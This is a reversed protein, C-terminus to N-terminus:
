EELNISKVTSFDITQFITKYGIFSCKFLYYKGIVIDNIKFVGEANTIGGTRLSTDMIDHLSVTVYSMPNNSKNDVIKGSLHGKQAVSSLALFFSFLSLFFRM